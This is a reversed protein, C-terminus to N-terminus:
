GAAPGPTAPPEAPTLDLAAVEGIVAVSPAGLGAAAATAAISGVAARVVRMSPTGADAIVAAPRTAPMGADILRECIAGLYKVGMLVVITLDLRALGDWDVQGRPDGPPVHGSVAVFGQVLNRHTVPIGALEPAAISSSVGPIVRVPVGAQACAQCEEGGRGFVFSDGGKFRVVRLGARAREVLLRNIQQQPTFEGRPVKGVDILEAGPRALDLCEHPALRDYAIVDAERLAQLGAVTVLGPDGPGGGVLVVSGPQLPPLWSPPPSALDATM